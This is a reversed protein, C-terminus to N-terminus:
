QALGQRCVPMGSGGLVQMWDPNAFFLAALLSRSHLHAWCRALRCSAAVELSSFVVEGGEPVRGAM